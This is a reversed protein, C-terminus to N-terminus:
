EGVGHAPQAAAGATVDEGVAVEALCRQRLQEGGGVRILQGRAGVDLPETLERRAHHLAHDGGAGSGQSLPNVHAEAVSGQHGGRRLETELHEPEVGPGLRHLAEQLQAVGRQLAGELRELAWRWDVHHGEGVDELM